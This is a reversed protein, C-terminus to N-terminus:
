LLTDYDADADARDAYVAGYVFVPDDSMARSRGNTRGLRPSLWCVLVRGVWARSERTNRGYGGVVVRRGAVGARM